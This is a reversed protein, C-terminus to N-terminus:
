HVLGVTVVEISENIMGVTWLNFAFETEDGRDALM